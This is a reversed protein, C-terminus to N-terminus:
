CKCNARYKSLTINLSVGSLNADLINEIAGADTEVGFRSFTKYTYENVTKWMRIKEVTKIFEQMLNGMPTVVQKRHDVTYYQSPDTQDLFFLNTVIDREITSERGYGTESIIELLWILPTKDELNNTAITWERNTALKTGTIFFPKQLTCEGDLNIVPDTVILQEAIIWEDVSLDTILFVIGNADTITKGIRAWKTHCFYTRGDLANYNGDIKCNIEDIIEQIEITADIM